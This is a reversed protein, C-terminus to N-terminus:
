TRVAAQHDAHLRLSEEMAAYLRWRSLSLPDQAPKGKAPPEGAWAAVERRSDLLVDDLTVPRAQVYFQLTQGRRLRGALQSFSSAIRARDTASLILPNPPIVHLIRGLAGESTIALGTRDLAEISLLEGSEPLGDDPTKKPTPRQGRRRNRIKM